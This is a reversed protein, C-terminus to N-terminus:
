PRSKGLKLMDIKRLPPGVLQARGAHAQSSSAELGSGLYLQEYKAHLLLTQRVVSANVAVALPIGSEKEGIRETVIGVLKPRSHRGGAFVPGGSDGGYVNTNVLFKELDRPPEVSYSAIKGARLVPFAGETGPFVRPFGLVSVEDGVHPEDGRRAIATEDIFSRLLIHSALAPPLRLEIVAIDHQPDRFFPSNNPSPGGFELIEVRPNSGNRPDRVALYFPGHPAVAIMHASTVIMPVVGNPASSDKRNVVICTAMGKPTALAYTSWMMKESSTLGTSCALLSFALLSPLAARVLKAYTAMHGEALPPMHAGSVHWVKEREDTM